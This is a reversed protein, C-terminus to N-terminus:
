AGVDKALRRVAKVGQAVAAGAVGRAATIEEFTKGVCHRVLEVCEDRSLHRKVHVRCRVCGSVVEFAGPFAATPPMVGSTTDPPM